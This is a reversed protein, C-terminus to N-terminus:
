RTVHTTTNADDSELWGEFTPGALTAHPNALLSGDEYVKGDPDSPDTVGQIRLSVGRRAV